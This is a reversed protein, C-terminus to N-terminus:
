PAPLKLPQWQGKAQELRSLFEDRTVYLGGWDRLNDTVMQTDMWEHGQSQLTEILHFLCIKSTNPKAFFMSEGAFVGAVYVGYLGGVLRGDEWCEVSHAYGAQHFENYAKVMAPTIWTGSQHPRPLRACAEIVESFAQNFTLRYSHRRWVKRFSTSLHLRSFELIGREPPCFWLLPYEATPWPFIGFSYAEFLTEVSLEGGVQLIGEVLTHRPDPFYRRERAFPIM